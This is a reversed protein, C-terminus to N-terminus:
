LCPKSVSQIYYKNTGEDLQLNYVIRKVPSPTDTKDERASLYKDKRALHSTTLNLNENDETIDDIHPVLNGTNSTVSIHFNDEGATHSFLQGRMSESTNITANPGFLKACASQVDNALMLTLGEADREKYASAGNQFINRWISAAVKVNADLHSCDEFPPSDHIVVPAICSECKANTPSNSMVAATRVLASFLAMVGAIALALMICAFVVRYLGIKRTAPRSTSITDVNIPLTEELHAEAHSSKPKANAKVTVKNAQRDTTRYDASYELATSKQQM